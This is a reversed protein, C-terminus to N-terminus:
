VYSIEKRPLIDSNLGVSIDLFQYFNMIKRYFQGDAAGTVLSLISNEEIDGM